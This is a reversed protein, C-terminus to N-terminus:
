AALGELQELIEIEEAFVLVKMGKDWDVFVLRRGLNNM